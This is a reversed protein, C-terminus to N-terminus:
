HSLSRVFISGRYATTVVIMIMFRHACWGRCDFSLSVSSPYSHERDLCDVGLTLLPTDADWEDVRQWTRGEMEDFSRLEVRRFSELIEKPSRPDDDFRWTTFYAGKSEDSSEFYVSGDTPSERKTWDAPLRVKWTETSITDYSTM